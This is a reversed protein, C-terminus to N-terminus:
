DRPTPASFRFPVVVSSVTPVVPVPGVDGFAPVVPVPGLPLVKGPVVAVPVDFARVLDRVRRLVFEPIELPLVMLPAFLPVSVLPVSVVPVDPVPVLPVSLM